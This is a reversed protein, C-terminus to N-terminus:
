RPVEYEDHRRIWAQTFALDDENRGNPTMDLLQYAGNAIDAGRGYTSYTHYIEGSEERQFVTFGPREDGSETFPVYNYMPARDHGEPFSVDFDMNFESDVSSVWSFTWGMRERYVQIASLPARSVM